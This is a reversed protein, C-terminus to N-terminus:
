WGQCTLSLLVFARTEEKSPHSPPLLLQSPVFVNRALCLYSFVLGFPMPSFNMSLFTLIEMLSVNQAPELFLCFLGGAGLAWRAWTFPVDPSLCIGRPYLFPIFPVGTCLLHHPRWCLASPLFTALDRGEM